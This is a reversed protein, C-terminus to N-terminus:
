GPVRQVRYSRNDDADDTAPFLVFKCNQYGVIGICHM